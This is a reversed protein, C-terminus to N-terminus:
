LSISRVDGNFDGFEILATSVYQITGLTYPVGAAFSGDGNALYVLLTNNYIGVVDAKGDGNFDAAGVVTLSPVLTQLSQLRSRAMAMAWCCRFVALGWSCCIPSVTVM